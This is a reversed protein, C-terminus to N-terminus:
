TTVLRAPDLRLEAPMAGLDRADLRRGREFAAVDEPHAARQEHTRGRARIARADIRQPGDRSAEAVLHARDRDVSAEM